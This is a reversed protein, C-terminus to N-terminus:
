PNLTIDKLDSEVLAEEFSLGNAFLAFAVVDLYDQDPLSGPANGPMNTRAFDYVDFATSFPETRVTQEPRPEKPLADAGVLPPAATTGEGSSGHCSACSMGYVSQGHEVQADFSSPGGGVGTPKNPDDDGGCGVAAIFLLSSLVTVTYHNM